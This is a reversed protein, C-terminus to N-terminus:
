RRDHTPVPKPGPKSRMTLVVGGAVILAAGFVTALGPVEAFFLYGIAATSILEVYVLPALTSAEVLRFALISLIHGVASFLGLGLFLLLDESNPVSWAWLAQPTLLLAGVVCQFALTKVPDSHTAAYRTAVMYCAFLVGTGLAMLMGVEIPAAGPQVIVMSGGFGLVLGMTKRWTIREGLLLISLIVAIIPGVFYISVATALSIRAIAMFYLTMASVLFVTRLLHSGLREGPFIRGRHVVAAFPLVILCAVAYRAWSIFLPSYDASLAKAFGDVVTISLMAVIMLVAGKILIRSPDSAISARLESM